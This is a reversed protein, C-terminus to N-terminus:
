WAYAEPAEGGPGPFIADIKKLTEDDLQIELARLSGTLQEMTRPGIIPATVVPNHLLWALAVDAPSEKLDDCLITFDELQRSKSKFAEQNQDQGRRGTNKEAKGALVGSSLPSWPILAMNYERCAPIVELEIMRNFLNYLSQESTLGLFHRNKAECQAQAIHLAAFNSSGIYTVKGEQVLQEMAQWIEEWPTTREVHHMQYLDIHDTKLRKLSDECARKIHYASLGRDNIGDKMQGHVKTALVIQDRRNGQALWRGIIEETLGKKVGWGYVDASDFFNIGLELAKDMIEFSQKEETQTGFNMTGLCLRSVKVGTRGLSTYEM